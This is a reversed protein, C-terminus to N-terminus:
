ELLYMSTSSSINVCDKVHAILVWHASVDQYITVGWIVNALANNRIESKM